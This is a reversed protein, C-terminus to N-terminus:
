KAATAAAIRNASFIRWFARAPHYTNGVLKGLKFTDRAQLGFLLQLFQRSEAVVHRGGPLPDICRLRRKVLAIAADRGQGHGLCPDGTSLRASTDMTMRMFDRKESYQQDHFSM